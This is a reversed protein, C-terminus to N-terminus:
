RDEDTSWNPTTGSRATSNIGPTPCLGISSSGLRVACSSVPNRRRSALSMGSPACQVQAPCGAVDPTTTTPGRRLRRDRDGLVFRAPWRESLVRNLLEHSTQVVDLRGVTGREGAPQGALVVPARLLQEGWPGVANCFLGRFRHGTSTRDHVRGRGGRDGRSGPLGLGSLGRHPRRQAPGAPPGQPLQRRRRRGDDGRTSGSGSRVNPIPSNRSWTRYCYSSAPISRTSTPAADARRRIARTHDTADDLRRSVAAAGQEDGAGPPTWSM